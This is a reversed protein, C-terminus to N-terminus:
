HTEDRTRNAQPGRFHWHVRIADAVKLMSFSCYCEVIISVTEESVDEIREIREVSRSAFKRAMKGTRLTRKYVQGEIRAYM